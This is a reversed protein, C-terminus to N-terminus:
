FEFDFVYDYTTHYEPFVFDFAYLENYSNNLANAYLALTRNKLSTTNNYMANYSFQVQKTKTNSTFKSGYWADVKVQAYRDERAALVFDHWEAPTILGGKSYVQGHKHTICYYYGSEINYDSTQTPIDVAPIIGSFVSMVVSQAPKLAIGAINIAISSLVNYTSASYSTPTTDKHYYTYTTTVRYDGYNASAYTSTIDFMEQAEPVEALLQIADEYLEPAYNFIQDLTVEYNEISDTTNYGSKQSSNNKYLQIYQEESLVLDHEKAYEYGIMRINNEFEDIQIQDVEIFDNNQNNSAYVTNSFSLSFIIGLVLVRKWHKMSFGDKKKCLLVFFCLM